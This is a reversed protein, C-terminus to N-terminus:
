QILRLNNIQRAIAHFTETIEIGEVAFYHSPSSACDRLAEQGAAPAEFAISFVVIGSEKAEQCVESLRNDAQSGNVIGTYAYFANYYDNYSVYGDYYPRKYFKYAHAKTGWRAFVEANSMRRANSGGDPTNRYKYSNSYNEYREWYYIDNHTGSWDRVKHSFRDDGPYNNGRDDIWIDSMGSKHEDRLDYQTTNEGDTMLVVVKMAETDTLEFPRQVATDAVVEDDIMEAVAPRMAPHLLAAGWKMGLDIATNGGAGLANIHSKLASANSSHVMVSGYDDDPCWPSSIETTNENTSSLDFHSLRELEQDPTIAITSFESDDFIVCSSYDHSDDLNFYQSVTPGLNVTANYPVISVTTQEPDDSGSQIVTDVFERGADRLNDIKDNWGMSGSIDLVMSIEVKSIKEEATALAGADLDDIGLLRMFITDITKDASASVTRYNLGEDVTVSSLAPGVGATDIYNNAVGTPDGDQDLDAAALVARDLVHQMETRYSEYRMVDVAAGTLLLMIACLFAVWITGTAGDEEAIFRKAATKTDTRTVWM